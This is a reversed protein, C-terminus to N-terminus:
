INLLRDVAAQMEKNKDYAELLALQKATLAKKTKTNPQPDDTIGALYDISVGYYKALTIYHRIPLEVELREYRSYYPRTVNLIKAIEEQKLDHDERLDRLRYKSM